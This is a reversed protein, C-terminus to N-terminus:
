WPSRGSRPATDAKWSAALMPALSGDPAIETLMAHLTGGFGQTFSNSYNAPDLLDGSGGGAIGLRFHGGRKPTQAGALGGTLLISSAGLLATTKLFHRRSVTSFQNTM